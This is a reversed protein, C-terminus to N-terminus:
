RKLWKADNVLCYLRILVCEFEVKLEKFSM